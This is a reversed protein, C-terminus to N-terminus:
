FFEVNDGVDGAPKAPAEPQETLPGPAPLTVAKAASEHVDHESQMTYHRAFDAMAPEATEAEGSGGSHAQEGIEQLMGRARAIAADFVVGVSFGGRTASLSEGLQSGAAIIEAILVISREGSAHLAAVAALMGSLCADHSASRSAVAAGSQGALRVTAASMAGLGEVLSESRLRSESAREQMSGALFGLADGAAGVHFARIGANMAMRHMRVEMDEIENISGRLREVTEELGTSTLQTATDAETLHRLHGLIGLCGHEMQLFFTNRENESCGSLTRSEGAMEVIHTAIDDLNQAVSAVSAAFKEAAAGLQASQLALVSATGPGARSNKGDEAQSEASV